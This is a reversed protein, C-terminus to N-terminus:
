HDLNPVFRCVTRLLAATLDKDRHAHRFEQEKLYLPFNGPSLCHYTDLKKRAFSWFGEAADLGVRVDPRFPLRDERFRKCCSFVLGDYDRCFDTYVVERWLKKLVPMDVADQGTCDDLLELVARGNEQRVGFVPARCHLEGPDDCASDRHRACFDVFENREDVFRAGHRDRCAVAMRVVNLAKFVTNYSIMLSDAIERTNQGFAFKDIIKVWYRPPVRVRNIWRCSFDHFTYGCGGCRMRGDKLGYVNQESCRPCFPDGDWCFSALYSRADRHASRGSAPAKLTM